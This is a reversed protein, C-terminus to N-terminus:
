LRSQICETINVIVNMKPTTVVRTCWKMLAARDDHRIPGNLRYFQSCLFLM